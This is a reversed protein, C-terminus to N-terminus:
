RPGGKLGLRAIIPLLGALTGPAQGDLDGVADELLPLLVDALGDSDGALVEGALGNTIVRQDPVAVAPSATADPFCRNISDPARASFRATRRAVAGKLSAGRWAPVGSHGSQM